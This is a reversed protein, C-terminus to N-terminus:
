SPRSMAAMPSSSSLIMPEPGEKRSQPPTGEAPWHPTKEWLFPKWFLHWAARWAAASLMLWYLPIWPLVPGARAERRSLSAAGLIYFCLYAAMLNTTDVLMLARELLGMPESLTWRLALAAVMFVVLPHVLASFVNGAMLVQSVVFRSLGIDRILAAPNRWHVLLTQMWGKYWRTRQRLWVSLDIPADEVTGRTITAIRWGRRALRLGLDADETVNHPDWSGVAELVSRRFHNSTGGLPVVHGKRALWPLLGRFLAAYEFAFLRAVVSSDFNGIVLPAQVCALDEGEERFRQWAELLQDPHPRDEADFVVVFDGTATQLGYNLAKPKTRPGFDPVTVLTFGAPLRIAAIAALTEADDAECILRVDLKARPWRIRDLAGVLQPVIRREERLPVLVSYRPLDELALPGLPAPLAQRASAAALLRILVCGFFFLTALIHLALMSAEPRMWFAAPLCVAAMGLLAGQWGTVVRRASLAPDRAEVATVARRVMIDDHRSALAMALSSPTCICLRMRMGGNRSLYSELAAMDSLRPAVYLMLVGGPAQIMARRLLRLAAPADEKRLLIDEPAIEPAFEVGLEAAIAAAVDAESADGAAVLEETFCTGHRAAAVAAASLRVPPVGAAALRAAIRARVDRAAGSGGAAPHPSSAPGQARRNEAAPRFFRRGHPDMQM